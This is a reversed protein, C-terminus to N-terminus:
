EMSEKLWRYIEATPPNRGLVHSGRNPESTLIQGGPTRFLVQTETSPHAIATIGVGAYPRQLAATVM